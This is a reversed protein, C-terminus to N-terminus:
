KEEAYIAAYHEFRPMEAGNEFKFEVGDALARTIKMNDPLRWDVSAHHHEVGFNRILLLRKGNKEFLDCSTFQQGDRRNVYINNFTVGSDLGADKLMKKFFEALLFDRYGNFRGVTDGAGFYIVNGLRTAIADGNNYELLVEGNKETYHRGDLPLRFLCHNYFKSKDSRAFIGNSEEVKIGAIDEITKCCKGIVILKGGDSLYAKLKNADDDTISKVSSMILAKQEAASDPIKAIVKTPIAVANLMEHLGFIHEISYSSYLYDNNLQEPFYIALDATHRTGNMLPRLDEVYGMAKLCMERRAAVTYEDRYVQYVPAGPNLEKKWLPLEEAMFGYCFFSIGFPTMTSLINDVFRKPTMDPVRGAASEHYFHTDAMCPIMGDSNAMLYETELKYFYPNPYLPPHIQLNLLDLEKVQTMVSINRAHWIREPQMYSCASIIGLPYHMLPLGYKGKIHVALARYMNLFQTETFHLVKEKVNDDAYMEDPSPMEEGYFKKYAERSYKDYSVDISNECPLCVGKCSPHHGFRELMTDYKNILYELTLPCSPVLGIRGYRSVNGEYDTLMADKHALMYGEDMMGAEPLFAMGYKDAALFCEEVPDREEGAWYSSRPFKDSKWLIGDRCNWTELLAVFDFHLNNKMDAFCKDAYGVPFVEPTRVLFLTGTNFNNFNLSM